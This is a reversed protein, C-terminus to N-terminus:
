RFAAERKRMSVHGTMRVPHSRNYTHRELRNSEAAKQVADVIEQLTKAPVRGGVILQSTPVLAVRTAEYRCPNSWNALAREADTFPRSLARRTLEDGPKISTTYVLMAMEEKGSKTLAVVVSHHDGLTEGNVAFAGQVCDGAKM